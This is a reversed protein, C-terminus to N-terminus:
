ASSIAGTASRRKTSYVYFREQRAVDEMLWPIVDFTHRHAMDKRPRRTMHPFGLSETDDFKLVNVEHPFSQARQTHYTECERWARVSTQHCKWRENLATLDEANRFGRALLEKCNTCENCRVHTHKKKKKVDAFDPHSCAVRRFQRESPVVLWNLREAYPEFCSKYISPFTQETPFLRDEDNPRQCMTDFYQTWFAHIKLSPGAEGAESALPLKTVGRGAHGIHFNGSKALNRSRRITHESTGYVTKFYKGCVEHDGIKYSLSTGKTMIGDPQVLARNIHRLRKALLILAPEESEYMTRRLQLVDHARLGCKAPCGRHCSCHKDTPVMLFFYTSPDLGSAAKNQKNSPVVFTAGTATYTLTVFNSDSKTARTFAPHFNDRPTVPSRTSPAARPTVVATSKIGRSPTTLKSRPHGCDRNSFDGADTDSTDSSECDSWNVLGPMLPDEPDLYPHRPETMFVFQSQWSPRLVTSLVFLQPEIIFFRALTFVGESGGGGGWV